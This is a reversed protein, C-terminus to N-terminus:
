NTNKHEVNDESLASGDPRPSRRELCTVAVVVRQRFHEFSDPGVDWVRSRAALALVEEDTVDLMLLRCMAYVFVIMRETRQLDTQNQQGAPGFRAEACDTPREINTVEIM